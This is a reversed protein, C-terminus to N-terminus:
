AAQGSKLVRQTRAKPTPEENVSELPRPYSAHTYTGAHGQPTGQQHTVGKTARYRQSGLARTMHKVLYKSGAFSAKLHTEVPAGFARIPEINYPSNFVGPCNKTSVLHHLDKALEEFEDREIKKRIEEREHHIEDSLQCSLERVKLDKLTISALYAM